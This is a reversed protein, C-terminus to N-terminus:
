VISDEDLIKVNWLLMALSVERYNCYDDTVLYQQMIDLEAQLFEPHLWKSKRRKQIYSKFFKFPIKGATALCKIEQM